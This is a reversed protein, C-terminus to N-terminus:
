LAVLLVECVRQESGGSKDRACHIADVELLLRHQYAPKRTKCISQYGSEPYPRM